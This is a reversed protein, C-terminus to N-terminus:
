SLTMVLKTVSAPPFVYRSITGKAMSQDKPVVANPEALTNHAHIDANTLVTVNVSEVTGGRVLLETERPESIHSNVTTLTLEKERLSASGRLSSFSAPNGDRDYHVLPASFVTRLSQGGQHAAYMKFVHGVPTVCFKDEHALYLSNLCNILQACNAMAIKEPNQNFIDLTMGSFVADRLTPIQELADGPTAESGPRYWPGWEDIVLTIRHQHDIESMVHWHGDILSQMVEGQRLLEYWDVADFKLADGKGEVWDHTRGRSLNWAYYHLALGYVSRLAGPGKRAIEELFGRTWDWSDDNPGSAILSLEMGYHPVWTAFRRFEVAYEQATFNGGCGWSENGVGWFQVNFPDADGATARTQALTTSGAPSNCYEVWRYFEEAPLSRLNAALYPQSGLLRCFHIFENTGFQNPDYKHSAPASATEVGEWFNTRRPRNSAPGIGDRWDYSDAFCGGPFRVVSPKIQKMEDILQKRIGGINPIKSNEGVWIGDYIVGGLNETFHGYINPSIVGLPEDLLIEIRSDSSTASAALPYRSILLGGMGLVSSDRLFKRRGIMSHEKTSVKKGSRKHDTRQRDDSKKNEDFLQRRAAM